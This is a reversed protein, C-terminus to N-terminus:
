MEDMILFDTSLMKMERIANAMTLYSIGKYPVYTKYLKSRKVQNEEVGVAKPYRSDNEISEDAAEEQKM